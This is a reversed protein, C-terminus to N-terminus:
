STQTACLRISRTGPLEKRATLMMEHAVQVECVHQIADVGEDVGSVVVFNIMLDRWGGASPTKFRDKIRVVKVVGAESLQVFAHAIAAITAMDKAVLMARVVDCVRDTKGRREGPQLQAKEVMRTTRKLGTQVKGHKDTEGLVALEARGSVAKVVVDFAPPARPTPM